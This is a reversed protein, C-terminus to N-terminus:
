GFAHSPSYFKMRVTLVLGTFKNSGLFSNTNRGLELADKANFWKYDEISSAFKRSITPWFYSSPGFPVVITVTAKSVFLHHVARSNLNVLPVVLFNEGVLNQVFFDM